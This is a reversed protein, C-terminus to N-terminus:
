DRLEVLPCEDIEYLGAGTDYNVNIHLIIYRWIEGISSSIERVLRSRSFLVGEELRLTSKPEGVISITDCYCLFSIVPIFNGGRRKM